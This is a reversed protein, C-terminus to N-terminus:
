DNLNICVNLKRELKGDAAIRTQLNSVSKAHRFIQKTMWTGKKQFAAM